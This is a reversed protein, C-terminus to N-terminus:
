RKRPPTTGNMGSGPTPNDPQPEAPREEAARAKKVANMAAKAPKDKFETDDTFLEVYLTTSAEPKEGMAIQGVTKAMFDRANQVGRRGKVIDDAINLALTNSAESDCRASLEGNTRFAVVSGDFQALDDIKDPAVKYDIVQELV